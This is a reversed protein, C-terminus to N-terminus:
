DSLTSHQKSKARRDVLQIEKQQQRSYCRQQVSSQVGGGGGGRRRRAIPSLRAFIEVRANKSSRPPLPFSVADANVEDDDARWCRRSRVLSRALAARHRPTYGVSRSMRGSNDVSKSCFDNLDSSPSQLPSMSNKM